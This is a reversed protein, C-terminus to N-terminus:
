YDIRILEKLRERVMEIQDGYISWGEDTVNEWDEEINNKIDWLYDIVEKITDEHKKSLGSFKSIKSLSQLSKKFQELEESHKNM